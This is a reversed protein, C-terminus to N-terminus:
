VAALNDLFRRAEDAPILVRRGCRKTHITGESILEWVRSKSLSVADAFGPVSYALKEAHPTKTNTQM